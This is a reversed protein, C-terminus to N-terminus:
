MSRTKAAPRIARVGGRACGSATAKATDLPATYAPAAVVTHYARAAPLATMTAWAGLAGSAQVQARYATTVATNTADAGGVSFVYSPHSTGTTVPVYAAGLGQLAAPLDTTRAWAITSPSFAANSVLSFPVANSTGVATQVTIKADGTVGAPVTTVVFADTWDTATNAISALIATGGIPTFFVKGHAADGRKTGTIAFAM